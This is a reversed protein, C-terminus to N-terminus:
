PSAAGAPEAVPGGAAAQKVYRDFWETVRAWYDLVTERAVPTHDEFPYQVLQTPKGLGNLAEYMRDSQMPHTGVNTDDQNHLLLLPAAIQRAYLFPSMALYADKAQWLDRTESQFTFPTLTRNYAGDSAVGARFLRTHALCNAASFAGYSHGGVGIRDRDTFGLRVCEEVAAKASQQLEYVFHDNGGVIALDPRVVAYGQTVLVEPGLARQVPFRNPSSRSESAASASGFDNPYIWFVTPLRQGPRWDAPLMVEANLTVGDGRTFTFQRRQAASLAPAPDTFATLALGHSEGARQLFHNPPESAGQRLTLFRSADASLLHTVQELRDAASEFVRERTRGDFGCRDVFPRQGHPGYGDGSRYFASGDATTWLLKMHAGARSMPAGPDDHTGDRSRLVLPTRSSPSGPSFWWQREARRPEYRESVLVRGDQTFQLSSVPWEASALERASGTYPSELVMLRDRGPAPLTTDHVADMPRAAAADQWEAWLLAGGEPSFTARRPGLRPVSAIASREDLPARGLVVPARAETSWLEFSRPFLAQPYGVPVPSELREVLVVHEDPSLTWSAIPSPAGIRRIEGNSLTVRALQSRVHYEFAAQDDPTRLVDRATRQPAARGTSTREAPGKPIRARVPAANVGAPVVTTYVSKGDEAFEIALGPVGHLRVGRVRQAKGNSADVVWLEAGGDGFLACAVQDGKRSWATAGVRAGEPLQARVSRADSVRIITFGSAANKLAQRTAVLRPLVELGALRELPEALTELPILSRMDLQLIRAGDPSLDPATRPLRPALLIDAIAAPPARYGGEQAEAPASLALTAFALVLFRRLM